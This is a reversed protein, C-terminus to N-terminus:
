GASPQRRRRILVVAGLAVFLVALVSPIIYVKGSARESAAQAPTEVLGPDSRVTVEHVVAGPKEFTAGPLGKIYTHGDLRFRGDCAYGAANSGSGGLLGECGTVTAAVTVGHDRIDQIQSNKNAGGIFFVISTVALAALVIVTLTKRLRAVNIETGAGGGARLVTLPKDTPEPTTM